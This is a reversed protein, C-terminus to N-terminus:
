GLTADAIDAGGDAHLEVKRYGIAQLLATHPLTLPGPKPATGPKPQPYATANATAFTISGERYRVVQHIHGNLVTVREFSRLMALAKAGDETTWGWQPYLAYLPVHAFVVIPTSRKHAKLDNELWTLQESGLLGMKEFSFVNVLAIFHTGNRDWSHWTSRKDPSPFIEFFRKHDSGVFDHEGPLVILPARLESLISKATDFQEPRSLHTVDGTHVVFQPQEPLANIAAVAARLTGAVDPNAEQHFGIHSDSIQVFDIASQPMDAVATATLIGNASLTYAIGAGTWAVHELFDRRKM